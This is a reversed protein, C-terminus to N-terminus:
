SPPTCCAFPNAALFSRASLAMSGLTAVNSAIFFDPNFRSIKLPPPVPLPEGRSAMEEALDVCHLELGRAAQFRRRVAELYLPNVDLGVIRRTINGDIRELGNGGAIGLIAVAEPRCYTLAEAFLDSLADLQQVGASGMHGEYDTLPVHLWPSPM